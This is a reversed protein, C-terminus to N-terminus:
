YYCHTSFSDLIYLMYVNLIQLIMQLVVINNFYYKKFLFLQMKLGFTKIETHIHTISYIDVTRVTRTKMVSGSLM